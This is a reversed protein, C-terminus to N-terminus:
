LGDQLCIAVMTAEANTSMPTQWPEEIEITIGNNSAIAKPYKVVIEHSPPQESLKHLIRDSVCNNHNATARQTFDSGYKSTFMKRAEVLEKIESRGSVWILTCICEMLDPPCEKEAKLLAMREVVMECFLEIIEFAELTYDTRIVSECKIRAKEIKQQSLFTAIDAKQQKVANTKKNKAIHSKQLTKTTQTQARLVLQALQARRM